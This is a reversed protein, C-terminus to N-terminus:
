NQNLGWVQFSGPILQQIKDLFILQHGLSQLRIRSSALVLFRFHAARHVLLLFPVIPDRTQTGIDLGWLALLDLSLAAVDSKFIEIFKDNELFASNRAKHLIQDVVHGIAEDRDMVHLKLERLHSVNLSM